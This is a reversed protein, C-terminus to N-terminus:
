TIPQTPNFKKQGVMTPQTLFDGLSTGVRSMCVGVFLYMSRKNRHFDKHLFLKGQKKTNLLMLFFQNFSFQKQDVYFAFSIKLSQKESIKEKKLFCSQRVTLQILSTLLNNKLENLTAVLCLFFSTTKYFICKLFHSM